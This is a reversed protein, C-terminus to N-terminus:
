RLAGSVFTSILIVIVVLSALLALLVNRAYHSTSAEISGVTMYPEDESEEDDVSEVVGVQLRRLRRFRGRGIAGRKYLYVSICVGFAIVLGSVGLVFLFAAMLDGEKVGPLGGPERM